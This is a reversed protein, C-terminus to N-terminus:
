YPSSLMLFLSQQGLKAQSLHEPTGVHDALGTGCIKLRSQQQSLHDQVQKRGMQMQRGTQPQRMEQPQRPAQRQRTEQLQRPVFGTRIHSNGAFLISVNHVVEYNHVSQCATFIFLILILITSFIKKM